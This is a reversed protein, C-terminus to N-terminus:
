NFRVLYDDVRDPNKGGFMFDYGCGAPFRVPELFNAVQSYAAIDEQTNVDGWIPGKGATITTFNRGNEVTIDGKSTLETFDSPLRSLFEKGVLTRWGIDAIGAEEGAKWRYYSGEKRIGEDVMAPRTEIAARYRRSAQGLMFELSSNHPPLFFGYGMVGSIVPIDELLKLVEDAFKVNQKDIPIATELATFTKRFEIGFYPLAPNDFEKPIMGYRRIGDNSKYKEREFFRRGEEPLNDKMWKLEGKHKDFHYSTVNSAEGFRDEFLKYIAAFKARTDANDFQGDSLTYIRFAPVAFPDTTYILMEVM